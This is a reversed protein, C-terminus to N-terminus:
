QLDVPKLLSGPHFPIRAMDRSPPIGYCSYWQYFFGEEERSNKCLMGKGTSQEVKKNSKLILM